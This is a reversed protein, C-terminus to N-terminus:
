RRRNILFGAVFGIGFAIGLAIYPNDRVLRDTAQAGALTQAKIKQFSSQVHQLGKLLEEKSRADMKEAPVGHVLLMLDEVLREPSSDESILDKFYVEM